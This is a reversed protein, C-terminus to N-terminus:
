KDVRHALCRGVTTGPFWGGCNKRAAEAVLRVHAPRTRCCGGVIQAGAAFWEAAQAAFSAPDGKGTWCRAEADWGEGSNPYVIIPKDSAARLKGVLSAVLAPHTCNIGIAVTQLFQAVAAACDSLLEGHAVYREDKCTFCFWAAQEPWPALAEGIAKAEELSPLTEFALLDPAKPGGESLVRIRDRHFAVLDDFSVGYNGHYEAGNHLAAGYPGLSGAIVIRRHPFEAAATRALEVARLLAADAREPALGFEAYGMRSVQYSATEICDAGAEIYARHVAVIKEPADELVHASWLPGDINAGQYELESAMGGDLVHIGALITTRDKVNRASESLQIGEL